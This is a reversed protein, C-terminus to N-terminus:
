RRPTRRCGPATPLSLVVAVDRDGPTIRTIKGVPVGLIDVHNGVYLGPASLFHATITLSAPRTAAYTGVGAGVVAIAAVGAIVATRRGIM